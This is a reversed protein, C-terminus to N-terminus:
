PALRSLTLIVGGNAKVIPAQVGGFSHEDMFNLVLSEETLQYEWEITGGVFEPVRAVIPTMTLRSEEKEYTGTNVRIEDYRAIKEADTPLWREEFARTAQSGPMWVMSYHESTFIVLSPLPKRNEASGDKSQIRAIEWVGELTPPQQGFLLLSAGFTVAVYMSVRATLKM